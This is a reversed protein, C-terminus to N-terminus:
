PHILMADGYSYFRYQHNIAYQYTGTGLTALLTFNFNDTLTSGVGNQADSVTQISDVTLGIKSKFDSSNYLDSVNSYDQM